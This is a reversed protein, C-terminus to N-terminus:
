CIVEDNAVAGRRPVTLDLDPVSPGALEVASVHMAVIEVVDRKADAENAVEVSVQWGLSFVLRKVFQDAIEPATDAFHISSIRDHSPVFFNIRAWGIAGSVTEREIPQM